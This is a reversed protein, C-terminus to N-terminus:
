RADPELSVEAERRRRIRYLLAGYVAANLVLVLSGLVIETARNLGAPYLIPLLYHETFSETYSPEGAAIRLRQELPTLPCIWGAYEILVGWAAAPLHLFALSRWRLVLLGGLVVFLVFVLHLVVLADAAFREM